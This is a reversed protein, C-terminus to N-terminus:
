VDTPPDHEDGNIADVAGHEYATTATDVLHSSSVRDGNPLEVERYDRYTGHGDADAVGAIKRLLPLTDNSYAATGRYGDLREHPSPGGDGFSEAPEWREYAYTYARRAVEDPDKEPVDDTEHDNTSVM